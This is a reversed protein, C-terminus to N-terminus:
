TRFANLIFDKTADTYNVTVTQMITGAIGGQRFAYVEQTAAPYTATVADYPYIVLGAIALLIDEESDIRGPSFGM